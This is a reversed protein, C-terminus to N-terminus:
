WKNVRWRIVSPKIEAHILGLLRYAIKNPLIQILGILCSEKSRFKFNDLEKNRWPSIAFYKRFEEVFPHNSNCFWPRVTRMNTTYHIIIPEKVAELIEIETYYNVPKRLVKIDNYSYVTEITMVDYKPNLTGIEQKFTGNLIDQDAYNIRHLFKQLYQDIKESVDIKRLLKFNILLVGANIYVDNSKLGINEKYKKGICDKVGLFVKGSVDVKDLESISGNIITDCDLYLIKEIEGPLFDASFLRTFASLPWRGSVLSNPIDLYPIDIIKIKRDYKKGLEHLVKKNEKSIDEGLLYVTLDHIDKNNEFLSIVSIGMLWVYNNDCTYLVNM